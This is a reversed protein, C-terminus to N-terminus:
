ACAAVQAASAKLCAVAANAAAKKTLATLREMPEGFAREYRRVKAEVEGAKEMRRVCVHPKMDPDAIDEEIRQCAAEVEATLADGVARVMQEDAVVRM